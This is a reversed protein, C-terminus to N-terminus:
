IFRGNDLKKIDYKDITKQQIKYQYDNSKNLWYIIKRRNEKKPNNERYKKQKKQIEDKNNGYYTQVNKLHKQYANTNTKSKRDLLIVCDEDEDDDDQEDDDRGARARRATHRQVVPQQPAQAPEEQGNTLIKFYATDFMFTSTRMMKAYEKKENFSITKKTYLFIVFSSRLMSSGVKYEVGQANKYGKFINELRKSVTMDNVKKTKDNKPTFVFQRPYLRRTERIIAKLDDPLDFEVPEHRKKWGALDLVIDNDKFWLYNGNDKKIDTFELSKIEGRLPPILTYMSLLVYDLNLSYAEQSNKNGILDFEAKLQRQRQLVTEWPIVGGRKMEAENLRNFGEEYRIDAKLEQLITQYKILLVHNANRDLSLYLIRMMASIDAELTSLSRNKSIARELIECMLLRHERVIWELSDLNARYKRFSPFKSTFGRVKPAISKKDSKVKDDHYFGDKFLEYRIVDVPVTDIDKLEYNTLGSQLSITYKMKEYDLAELRQTIADNPKDFYTDWFPSEPDTIDYQKQDVKKLTLDLERRPPRRQRARAPQAQPQPQQQPQPAPQAPNRPPQRNRPNAVPRANLRQVQQRNRQPRNMDRIFAFM